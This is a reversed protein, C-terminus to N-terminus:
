VLVPLLKNIGTGDGNEDAQEVRRVRVNLVVACRSETVDRDVAGVPFLKSLVLGLEDGTENCEHIALAELYL